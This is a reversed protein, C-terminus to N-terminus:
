ARAMRETNVYTDYWAMFIAPNRFAKKDAKTEIYPEIKPKSTGYPKSKHQGHAKCNCCCKASGNCGSCPDNM